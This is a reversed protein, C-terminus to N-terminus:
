NANHNPKHYVPCMSVHHAKYKISYELTFYNIRLNIAAQLIHMVELNDRNKWFTDLWNDLHLSSCVYTKNQGSPFYVM